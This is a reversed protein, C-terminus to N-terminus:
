EEAYKLLEEKVESVSMSEKLMNIIRKELNRYDETRIESRKSKSKSISKNKEM